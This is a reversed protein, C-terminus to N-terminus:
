LPYEQINCDEQLLLVQPTPKPWAGRVFNGVRVWDLKSILLYKDDKKAELYNMVCFVPLTTTKLNPEDM